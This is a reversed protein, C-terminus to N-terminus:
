ATAALMAERLAGGIRAVEDLELTPDVPLMLSTQGLEHATALRQPPALGAATFALEDYIEPCSGSFCPMGAANVEGVIRDRSWGSRLREPRVFAYYKYYSHGITDDPVTLRLAALPALLDDLLAARQRRAQLWAPLKGLQVLGIAAQMETLRYNSGFSDHLPRFSKGIAPQRLKARSKGHDKMSWARDYVEGDRMLLMGGEGGTSMIKDTCFSFAAADGFSGVPRGDITAGHAQACDEIVKIGHGNALAVIEDMPCPWGALHVAIIARTRETMVQAITRANLNQTVPDVDAFVPTAGCFVICGASAFFSRPTVIVEDGAGIGLARLAVELALTGNAMAIAYPAQHAAAFAQEFALNCAGHVLANTRGSRLVDTVAAIEDADHRPWRSVVPAAAAEAASAPWRRASRSAPM